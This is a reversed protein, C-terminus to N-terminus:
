DARKVAVILVIQKDPQGTTLTGAIAPQGDKLRLSTNLEVQRNEYVPSSSNPSNGRVMAVVVPVSTAFKFKSLQLEDQGAGVSPTRFTTLSLEYPIAQVDGGSEVSERGLLARAEVGTRDTGRAVFTTALKYNKLLLSQRLQRVTSEIAAPIESTGGDNSAVVVYVQVQFQREVQPVPATQDTPQQARTTLPLLGAAAFLSALLAWRFRTKKM